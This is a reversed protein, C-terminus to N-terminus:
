TLSGSQNNKILDTMEEVNPDDYELTASWLSSTGLMWHQLAGIVVDGIGAFLDVIPSFLKGGFDAQSFNPVAFMCTILILVSAIIKQIKKRCKLM